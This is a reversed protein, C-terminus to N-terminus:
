KETAEGERGEGMTTFGDTTFGDTHIEVTTFGDTHIELTTFGDTHIDLTTFGHTPLPPRHSRISGDVTRSLSYITNPLPAPETGIPSPGRGCSTRHTARDRGCQQTAHWPDTTRRGTAGSVTGREQSGPVCWRNEGPSRDWTCEKDFRFSLPEFHPGSGPDVGGIPRRVSRRTDKWWWPGEGTERDISIKEFEDSRKGKGDIGKESATGRRSRNGGVGGGGTGDRGPGKTPGDATSPSGGGGERAAWGQRRVDWWTQDM